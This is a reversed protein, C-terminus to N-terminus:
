TSVLSLIYLVGDISSSSSFSGFECAAIVLLASSIRALAFFRSVTLKSSTISTPIRKNVLM